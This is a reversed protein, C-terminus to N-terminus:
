RQKLYILYLFYQKKFEDESVEHLFYTQDKSLDSARSLMTRNDKNIISAYHGTAIYDAGIKFAYDLLSLSLKEIVYSM